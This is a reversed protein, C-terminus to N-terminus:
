GQALGVSARSAKNEDTNPIPEPRNLINEKEKAWFQIQKVKSHLNKQGEKLKRQLYKIDTARKEPGEQVYKDIKAQVEIEWPLYKEAYWTLFAPNVAFTSKLSLANEILCKQQEDLLRRLEKIEDAYEKPKEAMYKDLRAQTATQWPVYVEKIWTKLTPTLNFSGEMTQKDNM